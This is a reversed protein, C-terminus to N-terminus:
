GRCTNGNEGGDDAPEPNDPDTLVPRAECVLESTGPGPISVIGAPTWQGGPVRYWTDYNLTVSIRVKGRERYTHTVDGDPYPAGLSTTTVEDGDGFSWTYSSPNARVDVPWTLVTVTRDVYRQEAYVNTELNM